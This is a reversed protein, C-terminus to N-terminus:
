DNPIQEQQEILDDLSQRQSGDYGEDPTSQQSPTPQDNQESSFLDSDPLLDLAKLKEKTEDLKKQENTDFFDEPLFAVLWETTAEVYVYLRSDKFWDDKEDDSAFMHVPMYLVSLLVVGRALGFIVGFTRDLIGMGITEIFKSLFHSLISLIIVVALFLTAYGLIEAMLPYPIVGMFHQIEEGEKPKNDGEILGLYFPSLAGGYTYAVVLGGIVGLITLVERIFGRFFAILASIIVVAGIILDILM